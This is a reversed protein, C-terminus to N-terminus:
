HTENEKKELCKECIILEPLRAESNIYVLELNCCKCVEIRIKSM